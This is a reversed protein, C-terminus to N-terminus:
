PKPKPTPKPMQKRIEKLVAQAKKKQEPFEKEKGMIPYEAQLEAIEYPSFGSAILLIGDTVKKGVKMVCAVRGNIMAVVLGERHEVTHDMLKNAGHADLQFYSGITGDGAPFPYFAVFDQETVVPVNSLFVKKPPNFLNVPTVFSEGEAENGEALLRVSLKNKDAAHALTLSLLFFLPLIRRM